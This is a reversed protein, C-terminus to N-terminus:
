TQLRRTKAGRPATKNFDDVVRNIAVVYHLQFDYWAKRIGEKVFPTAPYYKTGWLKFRWWWTAKTGVRVRPITASSEGKIVRATRGTGTGKDAAKFERLVSPALTKNVAEKSAKEM